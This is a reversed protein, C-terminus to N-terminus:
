RNGAPGPLSSTALDSRGVGCSPAKRDELGHLPPVGDKVREAEWLLTVRFTQVLLLVDSVSPPMATPSLAVAGRTTRISISVSSM